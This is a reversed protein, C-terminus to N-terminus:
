APSPIIAQRCRGSSSCSGVPIVCLPSLISRSREPCVSFVTHTHGFSFNAVSGVLHDCCARADVCVDFGAGPRSLLPWVWTTEVRVRECLCVICCVWVHVCELVSVCKCPEAIVEAKWHGGPWLEDRWRSGKLVGNHPPTHSGTCTCAPLSRASHNMITSFCCCSCCQHNPPTHRFTHKYKQNTRELCLNIHDEWFKQPYVPM